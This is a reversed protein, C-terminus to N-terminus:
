SAKVNTQVSSRVKSLCVIFLDLIKTTSKTSSEVMKLTENVERVTFKTELYTKIYDEITIQIDSELIGRYQTVILKCFKSFSDHWAPTIESQYKLSQEEFKATAFSRVYRKDYRNNEKLTARKVAAVKAKALYRLEIGQDNLLKFGPVKTAVVFKADLLINRNYMVVSAKRRSQKLWRKQISASTIDNAVAFTKKDFLDLEICMPLLQDSIQTPVYMQKAFDIRTHDDWSIFYGRKNIFCLMKMYFVFGHEPENEILKFIKNNDFICNNIALFDNFPRGGIDKNSDLKIRMTGQKTNSYDFMYIINNIGFINFNYNKNLFVYLQNDSLYKLISCFM